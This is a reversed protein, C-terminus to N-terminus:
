LGPLSCACHTVHATPPRPTNRICFLVFPFHCTIIAIRYKLIVVPSSLTDDELVHFNYHVIM